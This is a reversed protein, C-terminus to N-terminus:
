YAPFERPEKRTHGTGRSSGLVHEAQCGLVCLEESGVCPPEGWSHSQTRNGGGISAAEATAMVVRAWAWRAKHALAVLM